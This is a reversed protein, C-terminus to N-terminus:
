RGPLCRMWHLKCIYILLFDSLVHFNCIYILLSKGEDEDGGLIEKKIKEWLQENEEFSPDFRFIDLMEEKDIEDDLGLDFTIQDEREVLDLDKPVAPYDQFKNKRIAFLGEITYQM